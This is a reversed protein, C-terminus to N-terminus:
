SVQLVTRAPGAGAEMDRHAQGAGDLPLIRGVKHHLLGRAVLDLVTAMEKRTVAKTGILSVEKLIFYAPSLTVLDGKVNGVLVVRGQPRLAHISEAIGQGGVMEVVFDAGRGGTLAKVEGAFKGDRAVVVEDAGEGRLLAEKAPSTTVAIARVGCLKLVQLAHLGVGGSAGTVVATEGAKAAARTTIAHFATGLVCTAVAGAEFSLADPLPVWVDRRAVMYEAYGGDMDEGLFKPRHVCHAVADQRCMDCEGCGEFQLSLVRQGISIDNVGSGVADITGTVQHGLVVPLPIKPFAGARTLVDHRCVGCARVKVRVQGPGPEPVAREQMRLVEPGGFSDIVVAKM